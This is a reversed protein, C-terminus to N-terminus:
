KAAEPVARGLSRAIGEAAAVGTIYAGHATAQFETSCAEGAFFLRDDIPKALEARQHAQGPLAASYSGKIWPDGHWATVISRTVHKPADSGLV